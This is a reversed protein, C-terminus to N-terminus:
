GRKSRKLMLIFDNRKERGKMAMNESFTLHSFPPSGFDEFVHLHTIDAVSCLSLKFCLQFDGFIAYLWPEHKRVECKASSLPKDFKINTLIGLERLKSNIKSQELKKKKLERVFYIIDPYLSGNDNLSRSSRSPLSRRDNTRSKLPFQLQM